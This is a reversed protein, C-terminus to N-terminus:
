ELKIVKIYPLLLAQQQHYIQITYKHGQVTQTWHLKDAGSTEDMEPMIKCITDLEWDDFVEVQKKKPLLAIKKAIGTVIKATNQDLFFTLFLQDIIKKMDMAFESRSHYSLNLDINKAIFYIVKDNTHFKLEDNVKIKEKGAFSEFAMSIGFLLHELCSPTLVLCNKKLFYGDIKRVVKGIYICQDITTIRVNPAKHFPVSVYYEKIQIDEEM